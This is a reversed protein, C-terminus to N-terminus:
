ALGGRRLRIGFALVLLALLGVSVATVGLIFLGVSNTALSVSFGVLMLLVTLGTAILATKEDTNNQTGCDQPSVM